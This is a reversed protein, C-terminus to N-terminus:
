EMSSTKLAVVNSKPEDRFLTDAADQSIAEDESLPGNLLENGGRLRVAARSRESGEIVSMVHNIHQNIYALTDVVRRIRQGTLDQFCCAEFISVVSEDVVRRYADIDEADAAMIREAQELITQTASETSRVVERLDDDADPLVSETATRPPIQGLEVQTREIHRAISKVDGGLEDDHGAILSELSQIMLKSLGLLEVLSIDGRDERAISDVIEDIRNASLETM